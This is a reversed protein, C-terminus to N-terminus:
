DRFNPPTRTVFIVMYTYMKLLSFPFYRILNIKTIFFSYLVCINSRLIYIIRLLSYESFMGFRLLILPELIEFGNLFVFGCLNIRHRWNTQM